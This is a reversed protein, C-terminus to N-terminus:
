NFKIALVTEGDSFLAAYDLQKTSKSTFIECHHYINKLFDNSVSIKFNTLDFLTTTNVKIIPIKRIHTIEDNLEWEYFDYLITNWNLLIDYIYNM